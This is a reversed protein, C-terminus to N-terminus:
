LYKIKLDTTLYIFFRLKTLGISPSWYLALIWVSVEPTGSLLCLTGLFSNKKEFYLCVSLGYLASPTSCFVTIPFWAISVCRPLDPDQNLSIRSPFLNHEQYFGSLCPLIVVCLDIVLSSPLQRCEWCKTGELQAPYCPDPLTCFAHLRLFLWSTHVLGGASLILARSTLFPAWRPFCM